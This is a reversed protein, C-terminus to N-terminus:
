AKLTDARCSPFRITTISTQGQAQPFSTISNGHRIPGRATDPHGQNLIDAIGRTGCQRSNSSVGWGYGTLLTGENLPNSRPIASHDEHPLAEGCFGRPLPTLPSKPPKRLNETGAM